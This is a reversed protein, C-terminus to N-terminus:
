DGCLAAGLLAGFVGGSPGFSGVERTAQYSYIKKAHEQIMKKQTQEPVESPLALSVWEKWEQAVLTKSSNIIYIINEVQIIWPICQIQAQKRLVQCTHLLLQHGQFLNRPKKKGVSNSACFIYICAM